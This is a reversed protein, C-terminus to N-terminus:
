HPHLPQTVQLVGQAGGSLARQVLQPLPEQRYCVTRLLMPLNVGAIMQVREPDILHQAVNSPTAGLVDTLVLWTASPHQDMVADIVGRTHEPTAHPEVDVAFVEQACEPFVHMACAKLAEALPAHAILLIHTTM